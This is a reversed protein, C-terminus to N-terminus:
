PMVGRAIWPCARARCPVRRKRLPASSVMANIQRVARKLFYRGHGLGQAM